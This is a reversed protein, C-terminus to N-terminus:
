KLLDVHKSKILRLIELQRAISLEGQTFLDQVTDLISDCAKKAFPPSAYDIMVLYSHMLVVLEGLDPPQLFSFQNSSSTTPTTSRSSDLLLNNDSERNSLLLLRESRDLYETM